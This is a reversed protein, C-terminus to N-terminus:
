DDDAYGHYKGKGLGFLHLAMVAPVVQAGQLAVGVVVAAEAVLAAKEGLV